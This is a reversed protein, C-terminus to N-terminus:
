GTQGRGRATPDPPAAGPRAAGPETAPGDTTTPRQGAGRRGLVGAFVILLSTGVTVLGFSLRLTTADAIAGFAAPAVLSTAYTITAVGAIAQSPAGDTQGAAAFALPVVVAIGVGLLAFGAIAQGPSAATVVLLGGLSALVGSFRVTRAPGFRRVLADGALRAAAMTCAFATFSAAAVSSSTGTVDKLYVGSWDMSAGEAFVACMGVAGIALASRPPLAFRPPAEQDPESRVDLLNRCVWLGTAVLVGGVVPLHLDAGVGAHTAAVAVASGILAGASWMGHLGSMISRGYKREVEVGQGNMAVDAMGATAGYLFLAACLWPLAPTQVPLALAACYVVILWRVAARGGFRHVMWGALPMAVSAGIAPFSLALGLQGASLDLHDRLWPIRTAFTGSVCGHITFVTAVAIRARRIVSTDRGPLGSGSPTAHPM